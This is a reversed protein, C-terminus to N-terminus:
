LVEDASDFLQLHFAVKQISSGMKFVWLRFDDSTGAASVISLFKSSSSFLGEWKRETAAIKWSHLLNVFRNSM